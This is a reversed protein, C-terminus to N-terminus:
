KLLLMKRTDTFKEATLRYFYVGSAVKSGANTTGDWEVTHQGAMLEGNVLTRVKQGLLNFVELKVDGAAPLAFGITTTPNFPNPYNQALSYTMPVELEGPSNVDSPDKIVVRGVWRPIIEDEPNYGGAVKWVLPPDPAVINATDLVISDVATWNSVTFYYTVWHDWDGTPPVGPVGFAVANILFRQRANTSDINNKFTYSVVAFPNGLVHGPVGRASDLRVNPNDWTFGLTAGVVAQSDCWMYLQVIFTSDNGSIDPRTAVLKVSDPAGLDVALAPVAGLILLGVFVSTLLSKM